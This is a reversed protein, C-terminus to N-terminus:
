SAFFARAPEHLHGNTALGSRGSPTVAGTFDTFEGGAERVIVLPAALDWISVDPDTAIEAQGEAVLMYQWFDGYGRARWINESLSLLQTLRGADRWEEFGGFCLQADALARVGSVHM